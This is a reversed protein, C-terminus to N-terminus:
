EDLHSSRVHLYFSFLAPMRAVADLAARSADEWGSAAQLSLHLMRLRPCHALMGVDASRLGVDAQM